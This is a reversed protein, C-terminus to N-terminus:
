YTNLSLCKFFVLLNREAATIWSLPRDKLGFLDWEISMKKKLIIDNPNYGTKGFKLAYLVSVKPVSFSYPCLSCSTLQVPKESVNVVPMQAQSLEKWTEIHHHEYEKGSTNCIIRLHNGAQKVEKQLTNRLYIIIKVSHSNFEANSQWLFM